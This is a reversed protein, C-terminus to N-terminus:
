GHGDHIQSLSSSLIHDTALIILNSKIYVHFNSCFKRSMNQFYIIICIFTLDLADNRNNGESYQFFTDNDPNM